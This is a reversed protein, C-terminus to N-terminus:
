AHRQEKRRAKILRVFDRFEKAWCEESHCLNPYIRATFRVGKKELLSRYKEYSDLIKGDFGEKGGAALFYSAEEDFHEELFSEFHREVFWYALSFVGVCSYVGPHLASLYAAALGGLSSGALYTNEYDPRTKYTFDIFPKVYEVLFDGYEKGMPKKCRDMEEDKEEPVFPCLTAERERDSDIGVVIMALRMKELTSTVEWSHRSWKAARVANQGDHMYLVPYRRKGGYGAPLYVRVKLYKNLKPSYLRHVKEM